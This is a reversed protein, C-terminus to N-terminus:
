MDERVCDIGNNKPFNKVPNTAVQAEFSTSDATLGDLDEDEELSHKKMSSYFLPFSVLSTGSTILRNLTWVKPM